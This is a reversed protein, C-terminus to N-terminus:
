QSCRLNTASYKSYQRTSVPEICTYQCAQSNISGGVYAPIIYGARSTNLCIKFGEDFHELKNRLNRIACFVKM